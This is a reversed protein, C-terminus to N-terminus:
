LEEQLEKQITERQIQIQDQEQMLLLIFHSFTSCNFCKGNRRKRGRIVKSNKNRSKAQSEVLFFKNDEM